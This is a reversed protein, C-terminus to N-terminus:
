GMWSFRISNPICKDRNHLLLWVRNPAQRDRHLVHLVQGTGEMQDGECPHRARGKREGGVVSHPAPRWEKGGGGGGALSLSVHCRKKGWFDREKYRHKGSVGEPDKKM